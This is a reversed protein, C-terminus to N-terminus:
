DRELALTDINFTYSQQNGRGLYIEILTTKDLNPISPINFTVKSWTNAPLTRRDAPAYFGTRTGGATLRFMIAGANVEKHPYIMVTIRQYGSIDQDAERLFVEFRTGTPDDGFGGGVRLSAPESHKVADDQKFEHDAWSRLRWRQTAQVVDEDISTIVSFDELVKVEAGLAAKAFAMQLVLLCLAFLLSRRSTKRGRLAM